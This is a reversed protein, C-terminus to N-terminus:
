CAAYISDAPCCDAGYVHKMENIEIRANCEQSLLKINSGYYCLEKQKNKM